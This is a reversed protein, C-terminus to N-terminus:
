DMPTDLDMPKIIFFGTLDTKEFLFKAYYVYRGTM